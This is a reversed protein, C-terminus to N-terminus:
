GLDIVAAPRQGASVRFGGTISTMLGRLSVSGATSAGRVPAGWAFAGTAMAINMRTLEAEGRGLPLTFHTVDGRGELDLREIVRLECVIGQLANVRLQLAKSAM